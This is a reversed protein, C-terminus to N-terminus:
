PMTIVEIIPSYNGIPTNGDLYRARVSVLQPSNDANRAIDLVVPSKGFNGHKNWNDAKAFKTEIAVGESHGRVFRVSIKSEPVAEAKINPMEELVIDTEPPIIGLQNGIEITYSNSVKVQDVLRVLREVIGVPVGTPATPLIPAPLTATTGDIDGYLTEDRFGRFGDINAKYATDADALYQVMREDDRVFSITAPDFGLTVALAAFQLNFNAYWAALAQLARPLYNPKKAM